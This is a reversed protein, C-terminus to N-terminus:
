PCASSKSAIQIGDDMIWGERGGVAIRYWRFQRGAWSEVTEGLSIYTGKSVDAIRLSDPSPEEKLEAFAFTITLTCRNDIPAPTKTPTPEVTSTIIDDSTATPTSTPESGGGGGRPFLIYLGLLIIPVLLLLPLYKRRESVNQKAPKEKNDNTTRVPQTPVKVRQALNPFYEATPNPSKSVKQCIFGLLRIKSDVEHDNKPTNIRGILLESTYAALSGTPKDGGDSLVRGNERFKWFPQTLATPDFWPRHIKVKAIEISTTPQPEVDFFKRFWHRLIANDNQDDVNISISFWFLQKGAQYFDPPLFATQYYVRIGTARRSKKLNDQLKSWYIIPAQKSLQEITAYAEDVEEKRGDALWKREISELQSDVRELEASFSNMQEESDARQLEVKIRAHETQLDKFKHQYEEYLKENREIFLQAKLLKNEENLTRKRDGIQANELTARYVDWLLTDESSWISTIRPIYNAQTILDAEALQREQYSGHNLELNPDLPQPADYLTIFRNGSQLESKFVEVVKKYFEKFFDNM